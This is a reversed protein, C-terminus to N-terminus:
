GGEERKRRKRRTKRKTKRKMAVDLATLTPKAAMKLRDGQKRQRAPRPTFFQSRM